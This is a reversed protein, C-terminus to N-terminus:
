ESRATEACSKLSDALARAGDQSIEDIRELVALHYMLVEIRAIGEDSRGASFAKRAKAMKGALLEELTDIAALERTRGTTFAKGAVAQREDDMVRKFEFQRLQDLCQNAVFFKETVTVPDTEDAPIPEYPDPDCADGIGDGDDDLQEPNGIEPCNDFAGCVADGDLDGGWSPPCPTHGYATVGGVEFVEGEGNTAMAPVTFLAGENPEADADALLTLLASRPCSFANMTMTPEDMTASWRDFAFMREGPLMVYGDGGPLPEPFELQPAPTLEIDVDEYLTNVVEFAFEVPSNTQQISINRNCKNNGFNTDFAYNITSKLCAHPNGSPSAQPTWPHSVSIQTNAPVTVTQAGISYFVPTGTSFIHVGFTVEVNSAAVGSNNKVYTTITNPVGVVPATATTIDSCLWTQPYSGHNPYAPDADANASVAAYADIYGHGSDNNWGPTGWDEATRILLNKISGPNIGSHSQKILAAVGAVHPSAMSTGDMDWYSGTTNYRASRINVGPASVEPKQEDATDLDGDNARPGRSSFNAISDGTRNVTGQDDMAAVCIANDAACPSTLGTNTPGDNAAAAVVTVGKSVLFNALQSASDTGDTTITNGSVDCQRLSLNVVDVGWTARNIWIQEFCEIVDNWSNPGCQLTTQCDVLQAAPAMGRYTGSTGGTGLAIGAVHTGHRHTDNPNGLSSTSVIYGGVFKSSPFSEHTTGGGAQDDVGSDIIAITTGSGDISPSQDELNNPYTTSSRVKIAAGSVNLSSGFGHREEVFAVEDRAAITPLSDARELDVAVSTIFHSQKVVTGHDDLWTLEDPEVCRNLNVVVQVPVHPSGTVFPDLSDDIGNQDADRGWEVPKAQWKLPTWTAALPSSLLCSLAVVTICALVHQSNRVSM